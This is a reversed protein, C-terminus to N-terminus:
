LHEVKPVSGVSGLVAGVADLLALVVAPAYARQDLDPTWLGTLAIVM